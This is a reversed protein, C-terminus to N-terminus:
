TVEAEIGLDEDSSDSMHWQHLHSVAVEAVEPDSVPIEPIVPKEPEAAAQDDDDHDGQEGLPLVNTTVPEEQQAQEAFLNPEPQDPQLQSDPSCKKGSIVTVVDSFSFSSPFFYVFNQNNIRSLVQANRGLFPLKM